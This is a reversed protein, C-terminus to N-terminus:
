EVFQFLPLVDSYDVNIRTQSSAITYNLQKKIKNKHLPLKSYVEDFLKIFDADLGHNTSKIIEGDVTQNDVVKLKCNKLKQLALKKDNVTVLFDTNGVFSYIYAGNKFSKHLNHLSYAKKDSIYKKAAYEFWVTLLSSGSQIYIHRNKYFYAPEVWGSNDVIYTFLHPAMKNMLMLLYGGQSHGYGIIKDENFELNNDKLILKVAEVATINDIAQMSGMDVFEEVTEELVATGEIRISYYGLIEILKNPESKLIEIHEKSIKKELDEFSYNFSKFHQMFKSGFYECQITVLNYKDAFEDRMKMYVNSDVHGGFGPVLLLLGTESNTGNEPISYTIRYNRENSYNYINPHAPITIEQKHAM